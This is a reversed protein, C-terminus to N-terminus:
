PRMGGLFFEPVGEVREALFREFGGEGLQLLAEILPRALFPFVAMSILNVMAQQARMPRFVGHRVGEDIQEQLRAVPVAHFQSVLGVVREPHHHLESIIYAPLYTHRSLFEIDTAVVAKVKEELPMDSGLLGFVRPFFETAARRFVAEALGDKSRFYYHLLAKNVGAEDAIEQMRAGATGRRVFVEHAADLIRAETEGDRGTM